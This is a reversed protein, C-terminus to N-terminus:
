ASPDCIANWTFIVDDTTLPSGDSWKLGSKLNITIDMHTADIVKVGGNDTAPIQTVMDPVPVNTPDYTWLSAWLMTTAQSITAASSSFGFLNDVAEWDSYVLQGGQVGTKATYTSPPLVSTTPPNTTGNGCAAVAFVGVFALAIVRFRTGLHM